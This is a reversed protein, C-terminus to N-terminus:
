TKNHVYIHLNKEPILFGQSDVVRCGATLTWEAEMGSEIWRAECSIKSFVVAGVAGVVALVIGVFLLTIGIWHRDWFSSQPDAYPNSYESM